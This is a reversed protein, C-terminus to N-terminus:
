HIYIQSKALHHSWHKESYADKQRELIHCQTKLYGSYSVDFREIAATKRTHGKHDKQETM